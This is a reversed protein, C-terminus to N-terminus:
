KINESYNKMMQAVQARTALAQPQLKGDMGNIVGYCTAWVMSSFAWTSCDYRDPFSNFKNSNAGFVDIGRYQTYRYLITAIQERTINENPGFTTDTLGNVIGNQAAWEVAASYWQGTPVDQFSSGTYSDPDIGQMRSLVTVLMARTMKDNPSFETDSTGNFLDQDVANNVAEEFWSGSPVDLFQVRFPVHIGIMNTTTGMVIGADVGNISVQLNEPLILSDDLLLWLDCNYIGAKYRDNEKLSYNNKDSWTFNYVSMGSPLGNVTYDPKQGIVPAKIKLHLPNPIESEYVKIELPHIFQWGDSLTILFELHYTGATTPTGYVRPYDAESYVYDMGPPLEGSYLDVNYLVADGSDIDMEISYYEGTKITEYQTPDDSTRQLVMLYLSYDVTRGNTLYIKFESKFKGRETPTGSVWLNTGFDWDMGSPLKSGEYILVKKIGPAPSGYNSTDVPLDIWQYENIPISTSYLDYYPYQNSPERVVFGNYSTLSHVNNGSLTDTVTCTITYRKDLEPVFQVAHTAITRSYLDEMVNITNKFSGEYPGSEQIYRSAIPDNPNNEEYVKWEYSISHDIAYYGLDHDCVKYFGGLDKEYNSYIIPDDTTLNFSGDGVTGHSGLTHTTQYVDPTVTVDTSAALSDKNKDVNIYYNEFYDYKLNCTGKDPGNTLEGNMKAHDITNCSFHGSRISTFNSHVELCDAGGRGDIYGDNIILKGFNRIVSETHGRGLIEGGNIVVTGSNNWIATGFTQLYYYLVHSASYEKRSRGAELRGGNVILKGNVVFLNRFYLTGDSDLYANYRLEGGGKSDCVLMQVGEDIFFLSSKNIKDDNSIIMSHGNLDLITNGSPTCWYTYDGDEHYAIDSTLSINYGGQELYYKVQSGTSATVSIVPDGAAAKPIGGPPLFTFILLFAIVFSLHKKKVISMKM